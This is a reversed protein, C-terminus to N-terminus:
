FAAFPYCSSFYDSIVKLSSYYFLQKELREGYLNLFFFRSSQLDPELNLISLVNWFNEM